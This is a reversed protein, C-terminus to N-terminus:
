KKEIRYMTLTMGDVFGSTKEMNSRLSTGFYLEQVNTTVCTSLCEQENLADYFKEVGFRHKSDACVVVASGGRKLRRSITKAVAYADSVQCIVDSAVIVDVEEREDTRYFDLKTAECIDELGNLEINRSLNDVVVDNFDTVTVRRRRSTTTTTTTTTTTMTTTTAPNGEIQQEQNRQIIKATVLGVLGCGAGLELITQNKQLLHSSNHLMYKSLVVSSPWMVYGVDKQETQRTTVQNILISISITAAPTTTTTTTTTDDGGDVSIDFQLPLRLRLEELTLPTVPVPFSPSSTAIECVLDQVELILDQQTEELLQQQEYETIDLNMIKKLSHHSGEMALEEKLVNDLITIQKYSQLVALLEKMSDDLLPQQQRHRQQDINLMITMFEEIVEQLIPVFISPFGRRRIDDIDDATSEDDDNCVLLEMRYLALQQRSRLKSQIIQITEMRKRRRNSTTMMTSSTTITAMFQQRVLDDIIIKRAL